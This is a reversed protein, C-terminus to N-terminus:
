GIVQQKILAPSSSLKSSLWEVTQQFVTEEKDTFEVILIKGYYWRGLTM